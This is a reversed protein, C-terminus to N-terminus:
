FRKQLKSFVAAEDPSMPLLKVSAMDVKAKEKDGLSLYLETRLLLIEANKPALGSGATLDALSRSKDELMAYAGARDILTDVRSPAAQPLRDLAWTFRAIARTADGAILWANGAQAFMDAAVSPAKELTEAAADLVGAARAPQQLKLLALAQCHMAAAGGRDARWSSAQDYALQPQNKVLSICRDYRAGDSAALLLLSLPLLALSYNKMASIEEFNTWTNRV